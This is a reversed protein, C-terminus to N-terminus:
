INIWTCQKATQSQIQQSPATQCCKKAPYLWSSSPFILNTSLVKPKDGEAGLTFTDTEEEDESEDSTSDKERDEEAHDPLAAVWEQVTVPSRSRAPPLVVSLKHQRDRRMTEPPLTECVDNVEDDLDDDVISEALVFKQRGLDEM